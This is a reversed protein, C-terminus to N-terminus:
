CLGSDLVGVNGAQRVPQSLRPGELSGLFGALTCIVPNRELGVVGPHGEKAPIVGRLFARCRTQLRLPM